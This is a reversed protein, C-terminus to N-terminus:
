TNTDADICTHTRASPHGAAISKQAQGQSPMLLGGQTSCAGQLLAGKDPRNYWAVAWVVRCGAASIIPSSFFHCSLPAWAVRCKGSGLPRKKTAALPAAAEMALRCLCVDPGVGVGVQAGVGELVDMGM